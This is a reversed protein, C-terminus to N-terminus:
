RQRVELSKARDVADRLDLALQLATQRVGELDDAQAQIIARLATNEQKLRELEQATQPDAFHTGWESYHVETYELGAEDTKREINWGGQQETM